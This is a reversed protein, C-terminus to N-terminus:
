LVRVSWALVFGEERINSTDAYKTLAVPFSVLVPELEVEVSVDDTPIFPLEWPWMNNIM